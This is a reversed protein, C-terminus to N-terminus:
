LYVSFTWMMRLKGDDALFKEPPRAFPSSARVTRMAERDYSSIGSSRLIFLEALNGQGNVSVALVVGVEGRAVHNASFYARLSSLPDFTTRFARKMRVFYSVGPYRLVNLYTHNGRKIDPFFDGSSADGISISGKSSERPLAPTVPKDAPPSPDNMAFMDDDFNYLKDKTKSKSKTKKKVKSEVKAQKKKRAEPKGKTKTGKRGVKGDGVTEKPVVSDYMGVFKAQKPREQVKPESIDAIRMNDKKQAVKQEVEAPTTPWAEILVLKEEAPMYAPVAVLLLLLVIHLLVSIGVPWLLSQHEEDQFFM